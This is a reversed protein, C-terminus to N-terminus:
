RIKGMKPAFVEFRGFNTALNTARLVLGRDDQESQFVVEVSLTLLAHPM